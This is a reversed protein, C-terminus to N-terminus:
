STNSDTSKFCQACVILKIAREKQIEINLVNGGRIDFNKWCLPCVYVHSFRKDTRRLTLTDNLEEFPLQILEVSNARLRYYPISEKLIQNMLMNMPRKLLQSLQYLDAIVNKDVKLEEM